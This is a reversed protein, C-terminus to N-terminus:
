TVGGGRQDQMRLGIPVGNPSKAKGTPVRPQKNAVGIYVHYTIFVYSVEYNGRRLCDQLRVTQGVTPRVTDTCDKYIKILEKVRHPPLGCLFM